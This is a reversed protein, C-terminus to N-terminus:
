ENPLRWPAFRIHRFLEGEACREYECQVPFSLDDARTRTGDNTIIGLGALFQPLCFIPSAIRDNRPGDEPVPEDIDTRSVVARGQQRDFGVALTIHALSM